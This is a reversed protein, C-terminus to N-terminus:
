LLKEALPLLRAIRDQLDGISEIRERCFAHEAKDINGNRRDNDFAALLGDLRRRSQDFRPRLFGAYNARLVERLDAQVEYHDKREGPIWVQRLGHLAILQRTGTSASAKSIGLRDAIDDLSLAVPSLFLLAYIQGTSRPLGFLQCFRGILEVFEQRAPALSPTSTASLTNV